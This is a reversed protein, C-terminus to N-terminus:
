FHPHVVYPFCVEPTLKNVLSELGDRGFDAPFTVAPALPQGSDESVFQVVVSPVQAVPEPAPPEIGHYVKQRKPPPLLAAM